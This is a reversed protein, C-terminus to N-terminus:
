EVVLKHTTGDSTQLFYIGKTRNPIRVEEEGQIGAKELLLQGQSDYLRVSQPEHTPLTLTFSGSSPNPYILSTQSKNTSTSLSLPIRECALPTTGPYFSEKFCDLTYMNDLATHYRTEFPGTYSGIGQIIYGPNFTLQFKQRKRWKGYTFITDVKTIVCQNKFPCGPLTDGAKLSFDYLLTAGWYVKEAVSDVRYAGHYTLTYNETGALYNLNYVKTYTKADILTDGLSYYRKISSGFDQVQILWAADSKPFVTQAQATSLLLLFSFHLLTKM